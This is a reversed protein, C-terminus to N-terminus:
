EIICQTTSDVSRINEVGIISDRIKEVLPDASEAEM